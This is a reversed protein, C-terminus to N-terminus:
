AIMKIVKAPIGAGVAKEPVNRTVVAGAAIIEDDGVIVGPLVTANAGIWINRGIVISSPYNTNRQEHALGRNLTCLIVRESRDTFCRQYHRRRSGSLHM